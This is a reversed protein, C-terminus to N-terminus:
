LRFDMFHTANQSKNSVSNCADWSLFHFLFPLFAPQPFVVLSLWSIQQLHLTYFNTTLTTLSTIALCCHLGFRCSHIVHQPLKKRKLSSAFQTLGFARLPNQLIGSHCKTKENRLFLCIDLITQVVRASHFFVVRFEISQEKYQTSILNTSKLYTTSVRLFPFFSRKFFFAFFISHPKKRLVFGFM